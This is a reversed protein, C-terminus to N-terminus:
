KLKKKWKLFGIVSKIISYLFLLTIFVLMLAIPGWTMLTVWWWSLNAMGGVKCVKLVIFLVQLLIFMVNSFTVEIKIKKNKEDM